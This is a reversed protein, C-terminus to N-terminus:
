NTFKKELLIVNEGNDFRLYEVRDVAQEMIFMGFGSDQRDDITVKSTSRGAFADGTHILQARIGDSLQEMKIRLINGPEGRYSHHIINTAAENVALVWQDVFSEPLDEEAFRTCFEICAMRFGQLQTMEAPLSMTEESLINVINVTKFTVVLMTLDDAQNKHNTFVSVESFIYDLVLNPRLTDCKVLSEKLGDLGFMIGDPNRAETIGDSYLVLLDGASVAHDTEVYNERLSFGMPMNSGSLQTLSGDAHRILGSTHGCNVMQISTGDGSLRAYSLTVFSELDILTPVIDAHLSAVVERPSPIHPSEGALLMRSISRQIATKTAAGLLAASVGKGMVDGIVIDVGGSRLPILDFFDGDVRSSPTSRAAVEYGAGMLSSPGTLLTTQIRAAIKVEQRRAESLHLSAQWREEEIGLASGIITVLEQEDPELKFRHTYFLGLVGVLERDLRVLQAVFTKMGEPWEGEFQNRYLVSTGMENASLTAQTFLSSKLPYSHSEEAGVLILKSAQLHYYGAEVANLLLGGNTALMELNASVDPGLQLLTQNLEAFRNEARKRIAFQGIQSGIAAFMDLLEPEPKRISRSFFAMVGLTNSELQVPLAFASQLGFEDAVKALHSDSDLAVDELGEAMEQQWVRGPLGEGIQFVDKQTKEIFGLLSSEQESWVAVNRLLQHKWDIDWGYGVDWGLGQCIAALIDPLAEAYSSAEALVRTVAQQTTVRANVRKKISIDRLYASFYVTKKIRIPTIALEVDFEEGNARLAPVEIRKGLVPGEGTELFHAFGKNHAGRLSSPVILDVMRKGLIDERQYGFMKEAAPNFEVVNGDRDINIIADLASTLIASRFAESSQFAQITKRMEIRAVVQRALLTLMEKQDDTLHRPKFDIICLTGLAHNGETILPVGAYFRIHPEEEVFPNDSFRSDQTADEVVFMEKQLIAHGCFSIDRPSEVIDMGVKSKFWQRDMDILSILSVPAQCVLSAIKVFDDYSEEPPSDLIDYGELAELRSKEDPPHPPYQM